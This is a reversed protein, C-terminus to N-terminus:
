RGRGKRFSSEKMTSIAHRIAQGADYITAKSTPHLARPVVTTSIYVLDSDDFYVDDSDPSLGAQQKIAATLTLQKGTSVFYLWMVTDPPLIPEERGPSSDSSNPAFEDLRM